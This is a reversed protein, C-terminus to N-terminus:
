WLQEVRFVNQPSFNVPSYSNVSPSNKATFMFHKPRLPLLCLSILPLLLYMVKPMDDFKKLRSLVLIMDESGFSLKPLDPFPNILEIPRLTLVLVSFYFLCPIGDSIDTHLVKWLNVPLKLFTRIFNILPPPGFM